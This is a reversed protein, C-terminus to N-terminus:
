RALWGTPPWDPRAACEECQRNHAGESKFRIGCGLCTRLVKKRRPARKPAGEATGPTERGVRRSNAPTGNSGGNGTGTM